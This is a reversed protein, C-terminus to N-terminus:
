AGWSQRTMLSGHHRLFPWFRGKVGGTTEWSMAFPYDADDACDASWFEQQRGMRLSPQAGQRCSAGLASLGDWAVPPLGRVRATKRFFLAPCACPLHTDTCTSHDPSAKPSQPIASDSRAFPPAPPWGGARPPGRSFDCTGTTTGAGIIIEQVSDRRTIEPITSYTSDWVDSALMIPQQQESRGLIHPWSSSRYPLLYVTPPTPRNISYSAHCPSHATHYIGHLQLRTGSYSTQWYSPLPHLNQPLQKAM